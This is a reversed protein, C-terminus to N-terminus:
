ITDLLKELEDKMSLALGLNKEKYVAAASPNEIVERLQGACVDVDDNVLICNYEDIYDVEESARSLRKRITEMNETGRGRLREYLEKASPPVIYVLLADPCKKRVNLAGKVEVDLLAREGRAFCDYVPLAPTGYRNDAYRAHELLEDREELGDFEEDSLFLYDVGHVETVGVDNIPNKYKTAKAGFETYVDMLVNLKPYKDKLTRLLAKLEGNALYMSIGELVIVAADADPLGKVADTDTADLETM